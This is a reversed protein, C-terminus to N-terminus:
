CSIKQKKRVKKESCQWLALIMSEMLAIDSTDKISKYGFGGNSGIPRKECNSVSQTLSPQDMHCITKAALMQEFVANAIIVEKVTPLIPKLLKDEKMADALIQQGNAGDIVVQEIDATELFGIIWGVGARAPRCDLGEVFMKGDDTHVAVSMAVNTGDKGYKIGIYLSGAFVPLKDLKLEEWESRSVASKLNYRIWFGLRQINFDLEDPGIEDAIKRETLIVGLSPNTEYWSERDHPDTQKEVSWEAWGTNETNGELAEDRMKMFVTGSSVATPPTGCFITQPNMSDSVVYKLATEQAGTYEQAEDIILLDYGEGLGGSDTRTRFSVSGGDTITITELGFQKSTRYSKKPPKDFKKKRGLEEYGANSLLRCTRAWESHSTTTRHSTYLVNEKLEIIGYMVRIAVIESKGNRRSVAYGYKTHTWLGDDNVALINSIQIEQWELATRGTEQYLKVADPGKTKSYPIVVSQTPTQRGLRVAM